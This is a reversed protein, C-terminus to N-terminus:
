SASRSLYFWLLGLGFSAGNAWLSLGLGAAARLPVLLAYIAAEVLVVSVEILAAREVFPWPISRNAWWAFPHTLLSACIATLLVRRWPAGPIVLRAALTALPV